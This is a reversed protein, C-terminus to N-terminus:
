KLESVGNTPEKKDINIIDKVLNEIKKTEPESTLIKEGAKYWRGNLLIEQGVPVIKSVSKLKVKDKM